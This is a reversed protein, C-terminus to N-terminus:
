LQIRRSRRYNHQVGAPNNSSNQSSVAPVPTAIEKKAAEVSHLSVAPNGDVVVDPIPEIIEEEVAPIPEIIEEQEAILYLNLVEL